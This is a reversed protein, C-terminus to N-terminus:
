EDDCIIFDSKAQEAFAVHAADAIGFGLGILEETRKRTRNLDATINYGIKSLLTKIEVKELTDRISEIEYHHVPSVMLRFREINVKSIILNVAETEIRIRLYSQDDFPRCLSCVDLYIPQL